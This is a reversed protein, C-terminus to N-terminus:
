FSLSVALGYNYNNVRTSMPTNAMMPSANIYKGKGIYYGKEINIRNIRGASVAADVIAAIYLTVGGLLCMSAMIPLDAYAFPYMLFFLGYTGFMYGFGKGIQGNYFQGVGPVLFSLVGALAPERYYTRMAPRQQVRITSTGQAQSAQQQQPQQPQSQMEMDDLEIRPRTSAVAASSSEDDLVLVPKSAVVQDANTVTVTDAEFASLRDAGIVKITDVKLIPYFYITGDAATAKVTEQSVDYSVCRMESGDTLKIIFRDTNQANLAVVSFSLVFGLLLILKKM